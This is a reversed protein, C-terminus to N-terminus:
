RIVCAIIPASQLRKAFVQARLSLTSRSFLTLGVYLLELMFAKSDFIVAVFGSICNHDIWFYKLKSQFFLMITIVSSLFPKYDHRSHASTFTPDPIM